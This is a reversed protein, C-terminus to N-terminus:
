KEGGTFTYLHKVNKKQESALETHQSAKYGFYFLLNEINKGRKTNFDFIMM